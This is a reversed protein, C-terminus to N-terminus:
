MTDFKRWILKLFLCIQWCNKTNLKGSPTTNGSVVAGHYGPLGGSFNAGAAATLQAALSVAQLNSMGGM